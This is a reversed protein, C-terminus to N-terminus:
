NVKFVSISSNLKQVMNNLEVAYNLLQGNGDIQEETSASVEETTAANEESVSSIGEISRLTNEKSIVIDKISSSVDNLNTMIENLSYSINYLSEDTRNVAEMQTKVIATTRNAEETTIKTRELINNLINNIDKSADKSKAALNGVENAVVAFGKGADGARAAEISANLSLLNTQESISVIVNVISKIQKMDENLKNINKVISDSAAETEIAKQNLYKVSEIADARTRDANQLVESVLNMNNDVINIRDALTTMNDVCAQAETAQYSSGSAIQNMIGAIQESSAKSQESVNIIHSANEAANISLDIVNAILLRIKKVMSNYSTIVMGIEDQSRDEFVKTLNGEKAENMISSLNRLPESISRSILFVLLLAIIFCGFGSAIITVLISNTEQNLYTYPIMGVVFWDTDDIPSYTTMYKGSANSIYIVRKPISKNGSDNINKEMSDIKGLLNADPYKKGIEGENSSSIVNGSSDIILAESNKGLDVSKLIDTLMSQNLSIIISGIRTGTSYSRISRAYVLSLEDNNNKEMLWKSNVGPKDAEANIDKIINDSFIQTGGLLEGKSSFLNISTIKEDVATTTDINDNMQRKAELQDNISLKEYKQLYNQNTNSFGIQNASSGYKGIEKGINAGIQMLLESSYDSIKNHVANSSKLFSTSGIIILPLLMVTIFAIGIRTKIKFRRLFSLANKQAKETNHKKSKITKKDSKSITSNNNKDIIKKWKM